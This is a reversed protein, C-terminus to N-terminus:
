RSCDVMHQAAYASRQKGGIGYLLMNAAPRLQHQLLPKLCGAADRIIIEFWQIALHKRVVFRIDRFM